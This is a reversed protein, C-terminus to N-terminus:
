FFWPSFILCASSNVRSALSCCPISRARGQQQKGRGGSRRQKPTLITTSHTPTTAQTEGFIHLDLLLRAAVQSLSLCVTVPLAHPPWGPHTGRTAQPFPTECPFIRRAGGQPVRTRRGPGDTAWGVARHPTELLFVGQNVPGCLIEKVRLLHNV